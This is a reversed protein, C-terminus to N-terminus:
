STTASAGPMSPWRGLPLGLSHRAARDLTVHLLVCFPSVERAREGGRGWLRSKSKKLLIFASKQRPFMTSFNAKKPGSTQWPPELEGALWGPPHPGNDASWTSGQTVKCRSQSKATIEQLNCSVQGAVKGLQTIEWSNYCYDFARELCWIYCSNGRRQHRWRQLCILSPNKREPM